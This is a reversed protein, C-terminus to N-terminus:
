IKIYKDLKHQLLKMIKLEDFADTFANHQECYMENNSLLRLIKEVGYGSKLRGTRHCDATKPIKPNHQRYAALKMIDYWTYLSLEPLHRYDFSANYAFIDAVKYIEFCSILDSLAKKRSCEIDLKKDNFYLAQSFMGGIKCEPTIIYYKSDIPEYTDVDAIVVGISMVADNWNTETDIVAFNGM